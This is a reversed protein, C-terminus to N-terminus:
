LLWDILTWMGALGLLIYLIPMALLFPYSWAGLGNTGMSLERSTQIYQQVHTHKRRVFCNFGHDWLIHMIEDTVTYAQNYRLHETEHLYVDHSGDNLKKVHAGKRKILEDVLQKGDERYIHLYSYAKGSQSETPLPKNLVTEIDRWIEEFHTAAYNEKVRRTHKEIDKIMHLGLQVKYVGTVLKLRIQPFETLMDKARHALKSAIVRLEDTLEGKTDVDFSARNDWINFTFTLLSDKYRYYHLPTGIM